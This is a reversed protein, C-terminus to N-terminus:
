SMGLLYHYLEQREGVSIVGIIKEEEFVTYIVRYKKNFEGDLSIRYTEYFPGKLRKYNLPDKELAQFVKIIEENVRQPLKHIDRESRFSLFVRYPGQTDNALLGLLKQWQIAEGKQNARRAEESLRDLVTSLQVKRHLFKEQLQDGTCGECHLDQLILDEFFDSLPGVSREASRVRVKGELDVTLALLDGPVLGLVERLEEPLIVEGNAGVSVRYTDM